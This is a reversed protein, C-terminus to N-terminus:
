AGSRITKLPSTQPERVKSKYIAIYYEDTNTQIKPKTGSSVIRSSMSQSSSTNSQHERIVSGRRGVIVHRPQLSMYTLTARIPEQLSNGVKWVARGLIQGRDPPVM